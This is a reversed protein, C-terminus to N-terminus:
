ECVLIFLYIVDYLNVKVPTVGVPNTAPLHETFQEISKNSCKFKSALLNIM